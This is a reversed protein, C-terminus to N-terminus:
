RAAAASGAGATCGYCHDSFAIPKGDLEALSDLTWATHHRPLDIGVAQNFDCDYLRGNWAVSLFTRCM